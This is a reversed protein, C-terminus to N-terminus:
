VMPGDWMQGGYSRRGERTPKAWTFFFGDCSWSVLQGLQGGLLQGAERRASLRGRISCSTPLTVYTLIAARPM